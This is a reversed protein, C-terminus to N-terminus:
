HRLFGYQGVILVKKVDGARDGFPIQLRGAEEKKGSAHTGLRAKDMMEQRSWHRVRRWPKGM